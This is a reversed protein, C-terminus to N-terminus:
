NYVLLPPDFGRSRQCVTELLLEIGMTQSPVLAVLGIAALWFLAFLLALVLLPRQLQLEKRVLNRLPSGARSRLVTAVPADSGATANLGSEGGDTANLELRSFKLRGLWLFLLAYALSSMSMFFPTMGDVMESRGAWLNGVWFTVSLMLAGLAAISFLMGGLTSRVFLTWFGASCGLAVLLSFEGLVSWTDGVIIIGRFAYILLVPFMFFLLVLMKESWLRLRSCPQSLLMPLTRAQFETGFSLAALFTSGLGLIPVATRLVDDGLMVSHSGRWFIFMAVVFMVACWPGFLVLAEKRLRPGITM